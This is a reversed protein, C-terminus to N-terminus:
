EDTHQATNAPTHGLSRLLGRGFAALEALTHGYFVNRHTPMLNIALDRGGIAVHIGSDALMDLLHTVPGELSGLQQPHAVSVWVLTARYELAAEELVRWPTSGGLHIVRFGEGALVVGAALSSLAGPDTEPAGGVAVPADEEVPLVRQIQRLGAMCTDTARHEVAIGLDGDLWLKGIHAMADHLPGDVIEAISWGNLYLSFLLGRAEREQGAELFTRLKTTEDGGPGAHGDPAIETLGLIQPQVLPTRTERVFRIAESLAIRRHGGATRSVHIRGDDAWRKLSSESVGIAQALEKPSLFNKL